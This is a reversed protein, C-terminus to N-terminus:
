ILFIFLLNFRDSSGFTISISRIQAFWVLKVDYLRCSQYWNYIPWKWISNTLILDSCVHDITLRIIHILCCSNSVLEHTNFKWLLIVVIEPHQTSTRFKLVSKISSLGYMCKYMCIVSLVYLSEPAVTDGCIESKACRQNDVYRSLLGDSCSSVQMSLLSEIDIIWTERCLSGYRKVMIYGVHSSTTERCKEIKKRLSYPWEISLYAEIWNHGKLDKFSEGGCTELRILWSVKFFM